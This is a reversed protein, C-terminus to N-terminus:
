TIPIPTSISNSVRHVHFYLFGLDQSLDLAAHNTAEDAVVAVFRM